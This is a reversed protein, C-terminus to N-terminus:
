ELEQMIIEMKRMNLVPIDSKGTTLGDVSLQGSESYNKIFWPTLLLTFIAGLIVTEQIATLSGKRDKFFWYGFLGLGAALLIATSLIAQQNFDRLGAQTDLGILLIGGLLLAFASLVGYKGGRHFWVGTVVALFLILASLKIGAAFGCLIGLVLLAHPVFEPLLPQLERRPIPASAPKEAKPPAPRRATRTGTKKNKKSKAGRSVPKKAAKVEPRAPKAKPKRRVPEQPPEIWNWFILVACASVFLLGMDIKMDRYSLWNSLPLVYFLLLGLLTFNADLMKRGLAYLAFLGLVGGLFSLGLSVATQDFLLYGLSMFLSWAYPDNGAVLGHYDRILSALNVYLTMADFGTPYPRNVYMFNMGVLFLLFLGSFIGVPNLDEGVPLPRIFISSLFDLVQRYALGVPLLLFPILVAPYLMNLSGLVFMIATIGFIGLAIAVLRRELSTLALKFLRLILSGLAYASVVIGFLAAATKLQAWLLLVGESGSMATETHKAFFMGALVLQFILVLLLITLGNLLAAARGPLRYFLLSGLVGLVLLLGALGAYQFELMALRQEEQYYWYDLFLLLIWIAALSLGAWKIAQKM